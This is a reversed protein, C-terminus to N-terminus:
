YIGSRTTEFTNVGESVTSPSFQMSIPFTCLVREIISSFTKSLCLLSTAKDLFSNASKTAVLALLKSLKSKVPNVSIKRVTASIIPSSLIALLLFRVDDTPIIPECRRFTKRQWEDASSAVTFVSYLRNTVSPTLGHSSSTLINGPCSQRFAISFATRFQSTKMAQKDFFETLLSPAKCFSIFLAKSM